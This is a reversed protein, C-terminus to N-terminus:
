RAWSRRLGCAVLDVIPVEVVGDARTRTRLKQNRRYRRITDYSRGCLAAAEEQAIWTGPNFASDSAPAESNPGESANAESM